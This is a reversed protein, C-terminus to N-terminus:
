QAFCREISTMGDKLDPTVGNVDAFRVACTAQPDSSRKGASYHLKVAELLYHTSPHSPMPPAEERVVKHASHKRIAKKHHHRHHKHHKHHKKELFGLKSSQQVLSAPSYDCSYTTLETLGKYLFCLADNNPFTFYQIAWCYEDSSKPAHSDCAQACQDYSLGVKPMGTMDGNCVSMRAELEADIQRLVPVYTSGADAGDASPAAEEALAKGAALAQESADMLELTRDVMEEVIVRQEHNMDGAPNIQHGMFEDETSDFEDCLERLDEGAHKVPGAATVAAQALSSASGEAFGELVKGSGDMEQAASLLADEADEMYGYLEDSDDITDQVKQAFQGVCEHMQYLTSMTEGGCISASDGECPLDCTGDGTTTKYFHTCYCDRGHILGFFAMDPVSRCFDFCVRPTMSEQNEREVVVDYMVISTNFVAGEEYAFKGDGYKDGKAVMEDSHCGVMWYGDKFISTHPSVGAVTGDTPGSVATQVAGPGKATCGGVMTLHRKNHSGEHAAALAFLVFM